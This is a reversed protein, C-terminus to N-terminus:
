EISEIVNRKTKEQYTINKSEDFIVSCSTIVTRRDPDWLCYGNNCYGILYMKKSHSDLKGNREEKSIFMHCVDLCM